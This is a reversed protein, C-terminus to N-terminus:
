GAAGPSPESRSGPVQAVNGPAEGELRGHVGGHREPEGPAREEAEQDRGGAEQHDPGEPLEAAAAGALIGRTHETRRGGDQRTEEGPPYLPAHRAPVAEM